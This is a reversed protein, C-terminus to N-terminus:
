QWSMWASSNSDIVLKSLISSLEVKEPSNDPKALSKDPSNQRSIDPVYRSTLYSELTDSYEETFKDSSKDQFYQSNFQKYFKDPSEDTLKDRYRDQFYQSNFFNDAEMFDCLKFKVKEEPFSISKEIASELLPM